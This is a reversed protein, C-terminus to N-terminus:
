KSRRRRAGKSLLKDLGGGALFAEFEALNKFVKDSLFKVTWNDTLPTITIVKAGRNHAEWMEVATGMSAQPIYALLVDSDAAMEIHQRYVREGKKHSYELSTSHKEFPCYLSHSPAHWAFIKKIRGRYDQDHIKRYNISGQIIGALFIRAL